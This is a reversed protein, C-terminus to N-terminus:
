KDNKSNRYNLNETVVSQVLKAKEVGKTVLELLEKQKFSSLLSPNEIFFDTDTFLGVEPLLSADNFFLKAQDKLMAGSNMNFRISKKDNFDETFNLAIGIDVLDGKFSTLMKDSVSLLKNKYLGILVDMSRKEPSIQYTRLGFRQSRSLPIITWLDKILQQAKEIFLDSTNPTESVLGYNSYTVFSTIYKNTTSLIDIRTPNIAWTDLVDNLLSETITGRKDLISPLPQFRIELIHKTVTVPQYQM